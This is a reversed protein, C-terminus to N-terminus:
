EHDSFNANVKGRGKTKELRVQCIQFSKVFQWESFDRGKLSRESIGTIRALGAKNEAVLAVENEANLGRKLIAVYVKKEKVM